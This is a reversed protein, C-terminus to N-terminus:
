TFVRSLLSKEQEDSHGTNWCLAESISHKVSGESVIKSSQYRTNLFSLSLTVSGPGAGMGPGRSERVEPVRHFIIKCKDIQVCNDSFLQAWNNAGNTTFLQTKLM